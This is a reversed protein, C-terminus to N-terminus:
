SIREKAKLMLKEINEKAEVMNKDELKKKLREYTSDQPVMEKLVLEEFFSCAHEVKGSKCLGNILLTYMAVEMSLDNIFMHNLLFYLVKMRKKKCCMKLLPVYTQLDPKCSDEEMKKLLKLANEEQSHDCFSSILTNYTEVNPTAGQKPMDDFLDHADKLRGAKGLIFILSNYFPTDPVCGNEKMKEYVELAENIQKAKGLAHMLITYTVVTPSCGKVKMEDLVADVKRFDKDRCYCEILSTYSLANPQFGHKEMDELTTRATDLKRAKCWGHILINFSQTNVPISEKYELFVEHAHEVSNEKVLSDMLINLGSIDKSLGFKEIGRFVDIAEGYLRARALRRIVKTMTALSIYGDLHKMEEILEWLLQFKESKGLIDVMFNYSEPSHSYGTQDKAWIFFGFAPVWVNRFRKLIQEVTSDSLSLGCGNLAQAVEIHSSYRVKLIKSLKDVESETAESLFQQVQKHPQVLRRTDVWSALSPIVFDDDEEADATATPPVFRVWSPLEPSETLQTSDTSKTRLSDLLLYRSANSNNKPISFLRATQQLRSIM